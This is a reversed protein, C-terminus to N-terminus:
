PGEAQSKWHWYAPVGLAILGFGVAANLPNSIVSSVVVYMAPTIFLAPVLPYGPTRFVGEPEGERRRFVFLCVGCLGFFIWDGFVVYDLLQGYTGSLTLVV